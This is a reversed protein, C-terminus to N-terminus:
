DAREWRVVSVVLDAWVGPSGSAGPPPPEFTYRARGDTFTWGAGDRGAYVLEAPPLPGRLLRLRQDRDAVRSVTVDEGYRGTFIDLDPPGPEVAPPRHSGLAAEVV